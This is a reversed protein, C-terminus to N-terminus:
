ILSCYLRLRSASPFTVGASRPDRELAPLKVPLTAEPNPTSPLEVICLAADTGDGNTGGGMGRLGCAAVNGTSRGENSRCFRGEDGDAPAVPPLIRCPPSESSTGVGTWWLGGRFLGEVTGILEITLVGSPWLEGAMTTEESGSVDEGACVGTESKGAGGEGGSGSGVSDVAADGGENHCSRKDVRYNLPCGFNQVKMSEDM